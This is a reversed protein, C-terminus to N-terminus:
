LYSTCTGNDANYVCAGSYVCLLPNNVICTCDDLKGGILSKLQERTLAKGVMKLKEIKSKKM